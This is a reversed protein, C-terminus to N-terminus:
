LLLSFFWPKLSHRLQGFVSLLGICFWRLQAEFRRPTATAPCVKGAGPQTVSHHHGCAISSGRSEPKGSGDAVGLHRPGRPSRGAEVLSALSESSDLPASRELMCGRELVQCM